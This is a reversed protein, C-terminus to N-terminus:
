GGNLFEIRNHESANFPKHRKFTVIIMGWHAMMKNEEDKPTVFASNETRYYPIISNNSYFNKFFRSILRLTRSFFFAFLLRIEKSPSFNM